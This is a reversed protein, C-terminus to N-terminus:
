YHEIYMRKSKTYKALMDHHNFSFCYVSIFVIFNKRTLSMQDNWWTLKNLHFRFIHFKSAQLLCHFRHLGTSGLSELSISFLFPSDNTTGFNSCQACIITPELEYNVCDNVLSLFWPAKIFYCSYCSKKRTRWIANLQDLQLHVNIAHQRISLNVCISFLTLSNM